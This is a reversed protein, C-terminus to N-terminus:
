AHWVVSSLLGANTLIDLTRQGIREALQGATAVAAQSEGRSLHVTGIGVSAWGNAGGTGDDGTQEAYDFRACTARQLATIVDANAPDYVSLRVLGAVDDQASLLGANIRAREATDFDDPIGKYAAYDTATAYTSM